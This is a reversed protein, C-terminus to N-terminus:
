YNAKSLQLFCSTSPIEKRNQCLREKGTALPGDLLFWPHGRLGEGGLGGLNSQVENKLHMSPFKGVGGAAPRLCAPLGAGPVPCSDRTTKPLSFPAICSPPHLGPLSLGSNLDRAGMQFTPTTM